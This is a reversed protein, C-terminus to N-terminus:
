EYLLANLQKTLFLYKIGRDTITYHWLWRDSYTSKFQSRKVFGKRYLPQILSLITKRNMETKLLPELDFASYIKSRNNNLLELIKLTKTGNMKKM